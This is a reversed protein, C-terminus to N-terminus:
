QSELVGNTRPNKVMESFQEFSYRLDGQQRYSLLFYRGFHVRLKFGTKLRGVRKLAASLQFSFRAIFERGQETREIPSFSEHSNVLKPRTGAPQGVLLIEIPDKSVGPPELFIGSTVTTKDSIIEDALTRALQLSEVALHNSPATIHLYEVPANSGRIEM